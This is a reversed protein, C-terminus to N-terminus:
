VVRYVRVLESIEARRETMNQKPYERRTIHSLPLLFCLPSEPTVRTNAPKLCTRSAFREVSSPHSCNWLASKQLACVVYRNRFPLHRGAFYDEERWVRRPSRACSGIGKYLPSNAMRCTKTLAPSRPYFAKRSTCYGVQYSRSM